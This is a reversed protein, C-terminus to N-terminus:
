SSSRRLFYIPSSWARHGDEQTVRVFLRSERDKHLNVPRRVAMGSELMRAPLRYLRIRRGLGGAELITEEIDIDAIAIETRVHATRISLRGADRDVLELDLGGFNGTTVAKWIVESESQMQIGRDLNWNNIMGARRIANGGVNLSGDWVTARARGRYEAGEYIVRIRAGLDARGFPRITDILELGDFIDLKEIPASGIADVVLEVDGASVRAIDGMMLWHARETPTDPFVEPDQLFVDGADTLRARVDLFM